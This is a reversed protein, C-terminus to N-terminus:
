SKTSIGELVIKIKDNIRIKLSEPDIIESDKTQLAIDYILIDFIITGIIVLHLKTLVKLRLLPVIALYLQTCDIKESFTTDCSDDNIVMHFIALSSLANLDKQKSNVCFIKYEFSCFALNIGLKEGSHLM